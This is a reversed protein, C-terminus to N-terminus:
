DYAEGLSDFNSGVVPLIITDTKKGAYRCLTAELASMRAACPPRETPSRSVRIRKTWAPAEPKDRGASQESAPATLAVGECTIDLELQANVPADGAEGISSEAPACLMSQCPDYAVLPEGGGIDPLPFRDVPDSLFEVEVDGTTTMEMAM